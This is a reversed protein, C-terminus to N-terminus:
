IAEVAALLYEKHNVPWRPGIAVLDPEEKELMERYDAYTRAVRPREKAKARGEEDPDSSAVYDIEDYGKFAVDFGHGYGGHHTDAILCAKLSM